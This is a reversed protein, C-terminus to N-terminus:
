CPFVFKLHYVLGTLDLQYRYFMEDWYLSNWRKGLLVHFTRWSLDCGPGYIYIQYILFFISIMGLMKESWLATLNSRWQLLFIILFELMHFSFFMSSFLWCVVSSILFSILVHMSIFQFLFVVVGFRHSVTFATSLPLSM